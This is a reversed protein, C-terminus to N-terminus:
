AKPPSLDLVHLQHLWSAPVDRVPFHSRVARQCICCKDLALLAECPTSSLVFRLSFCAADSRSSTGVGPVGFSSLSASAGGTLGARSVACNSLGPPFSLVPFLLLSPWLQTAPRGEPLIAYYAPQHRLPEVGVLSVVDDGVVSGKDTARKGTRLAAVRCTCRQRLSSPPMRGRWGGLVSGRSTLFLDRERTERDERTYTADEDRSSRLFIQRSLRRFVANLSADVVGAILLRMTRRPAMVQVHAAVQNDSLEM